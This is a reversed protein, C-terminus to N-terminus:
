FRTACAAWNPRTRRPTPRACCRSWAPSAVTTRFSRRGSPVTGNLNNVVRTVGIGNEHGSVFYTQTNSPQALDLWGVSLSDGTPNIAGQLYVACTDPPNTRASASPAEVVVAAAVMGVVM